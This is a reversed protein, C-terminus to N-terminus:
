ALPGVQRGQEIWAALASTDGLPRTAEPLAWAGVGHENCFALMNSRKHEEEETLLARMRELKPAVAALRDPYTVPAHHASSIEPIFARNFVM